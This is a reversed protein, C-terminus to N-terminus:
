KWDLLPRMVLFNYIIIIEPLFCFEVSTINKQVLNNIHLSKFTRNINVVDSALRQTIAEAGLLLFLKPQFGELGELEAESMAFASDIFATMKESSDPETEEEAEVRYHIERGEVPSEDFTISIDDTKSESQQAEAINNFVSKMCNKYGEDRKQGPTELHPEPKDRDFETPSNTNEVEEEEEEESDEVKIQAGTRTEEGVISFEEESSDETPSPRYQYQVSYGRGSSRGETVPPPPPPSECDEMSFASNTFTPIEEDHERNNEEEATRLFTM